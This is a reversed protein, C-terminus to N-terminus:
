PAAAPPGCLGVSEAAPGASDNALSAQWSGEGGLVQDPEPWGGAPAQEMVRWGGNTFSSSAPEYTAPATGTFRFLVTAVDYCGNRLLGQFQGRSCDLDGGFDIEFRVALALPDASSGAASTGGTSFPNAYGRIKGGRVTYDACFEQDSRCNRPIRELWFELGPRGMSPTAAITLPVAGNGVAASNYTGNFTGIYHGAQCNQDESASPAGPMSLVNTSSATGAAVATSEAAASRGEHARFIDVNTTCALLWQPCALPWLWWLHPALRARRLTNANDLGM